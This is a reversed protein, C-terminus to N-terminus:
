GSFIGFRSSTKCCYVTGVRGLISAVGIVGVGLLVVFLNFRLMLPDGGGGNGGHRDGVVFRTYGPPPLLLEEISGARFLGRRRLLELM